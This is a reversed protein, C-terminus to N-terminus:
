VARRNGSARGLIGRRLRDSPFLAFTGSVFNRSSEKSFNELLALYTQRVVDKKGWSRNSPLYIAKRTETFPVSNSSFVGQCCQQWPTRSFRRATELGGLCNSSRDILLRWSPKRGRADVGVCGL